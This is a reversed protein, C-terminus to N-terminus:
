NVQAQSHGLGRLTQVPDHRLHTGQRAGQALGVRQVLFQALAGETAQAAV